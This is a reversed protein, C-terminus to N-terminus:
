AVGTVNGDVDTLLKGKSSDLLVMRNGWPDEVVVARGIPIDFPPVVVCGGSEQIRNAADDASDVKLDTEQYERENQIVIEADSDPMRFGVATETRWIIEHGLLDHYFRVGAELDPVHHQVGDISQILPSPNPEDM